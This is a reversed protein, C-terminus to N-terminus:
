QLTYFIRSYPYKTKMYYYYGYVGGGLALIITLIILAVVWGEM